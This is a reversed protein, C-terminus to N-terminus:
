AAGKDVFLLDILEELRHGIPTLEYNQDFGTVLLQEAVLDRLEAKHDDSLPLGLKRLDELRQRLAERLPLTRLMFDADAPELSM